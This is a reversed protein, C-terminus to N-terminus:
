LRIGDLAVETAANVGNANRLCENVLLPLRDRLAQQMKSYDICHLTKLLQYAEGGARAGVLEIINDLKCVSFYNTEFLNKVAATVVMQKTSEMVAVDAFLKQEGSPKLTRGFLALATSNEVNMNWAGSKNQSGTDLQSVLRWAVRFRQWFAM